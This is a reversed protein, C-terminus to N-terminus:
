PVTQAATKDGTGEDLARELSGFRKAKGSRNKMCSSGTPSTNQATEFIDAGPCGFSERVLSYICGGLM